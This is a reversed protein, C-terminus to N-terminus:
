PKVTFGVTAFVLSESRKEMLRVLAELRAIEDRDKDELIKKKSIVKGAFAANIESFDLAEKDKSAVALLLVEGHPCDIPMSWTRFESVKRPDSAPADSNVQCIGDEDMWFWSLWREEGDPCHMTIHLPHAGERYESAHFTQKNVRISFM